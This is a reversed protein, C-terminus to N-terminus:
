LKKKSELHVGIFVNVLCEACAITGGVAASVVESKFRPPWPFTFHICFPLM